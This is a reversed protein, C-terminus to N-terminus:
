IGCPNKPIKSVNRLLTAKGRKGRRAGCTKDPSARLSAAPTGLPCLPPLGGQRRAGDQCECKTHPADLDAGPLNTKPYKIKSQM